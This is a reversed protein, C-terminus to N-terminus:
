IGRVREGQGTRSGPLRASLNARSARWAPLMGFAVATVLSLAAAFGLVTWNLGLGGMALRTSFPTHVPVTRVLLPMGWVALLVGLAGGLISLVLGELFQKVLRGRSAGLAARIAIERQRRVAQSLLLNSVNACGILLVFVVAVGFAALTERTGGVMDEHLPRVTAGEGRNLRPYAREIAASILNMDVRAQAVTVGPKLRGIVRLYHWRRDPNPVLPLYLDPEEMMSYQIPFRFDKPLVGALTYPQGDLILAAWPSVTAASVSRGSDTASCRPKRGPMWRALWPHFASCPFCRRRSARPM